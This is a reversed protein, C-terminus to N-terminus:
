CSCFARWNPPRTKLALIPTNGWAPSDSSLFELMIAALTVSLLWLLKHGQSFRCLIDLQRVPLHALRTESPAHRTRRRERPIRDDDVERFALAIVLLGRRVVRSPCVRLALGPQPAQRHCHRDRRTTFCFSLSQFWPHPDYCTCRM